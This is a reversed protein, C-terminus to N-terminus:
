SSLKQFINEQAITAMYCSKGVNKNKFYNTYPNLAFFEVFRECLFDVCNLEVNLCINILGEKNFYSIHDMPAIWNPTDIIKQEWFYKQMYSFDNPVKIILIGDKNLLRHALCLLDRPNIVHELVNLITIVNFKESKSILLELNDYVDGLILNNLMIPNHRSVGANSYDLGKVNYGKRSFFEIGFGEGCGIDLLKPNEPLSTHMNILLLYQEFKAEFFKLEEKTYSIEYSGLAEQYYKDKYYIEREEDNPLKKLSYFGYENLFVDNYM